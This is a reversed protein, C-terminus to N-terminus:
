TLWSRCRWICARPIAWWWFRMWARGGAGGAGAAFAALREELVPPYAGWMGTFAYDHMLYYSTFGAPGHRRFGELVAWALALGALCCWDLGFPLWGVGRGIGWGVAVAVLAQLVLLVAPYLAAIMPGKRLRGLRWLTGSAGYVWISRLMLWYTGPVGREM